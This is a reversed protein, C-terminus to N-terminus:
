LLLIVFNCALLQFYNEIFSWTICVFANSSIQNLNQTLIMLHLFFRRHKKFNIAILLMLRHYFFYLLNKGLIQAKNKKKPQSISFLMLCPSLYERTSNRTIFIYFAAYKILNPSPSEVVPLDSM